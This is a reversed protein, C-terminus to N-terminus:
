SCQPSYGVQMVNSRGMQCKDEGKSVFGFWHACPTTDKKRKLKGYTIWCLISSDGVQNDGFREKKLVRGRQCKHNSGYLLTAVQQWRIREGKRSMLILLIFCLTSFGSSIHDVQSGSALNDNTTSRWSQDLFGSTFLVQLSLVQFLNWKHLYHWKYFGDQLSCLIGSTLVFSKGLFGYASSYMYGHVMVM